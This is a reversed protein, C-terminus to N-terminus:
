KLDDMDPFQKYVVELLDMQIQGISIGVGRKIKEYEQKSCKGSSVILIKSLSAIAELAYQKAHSAFIRDMVLEAHM